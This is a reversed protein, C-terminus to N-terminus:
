CNKKNMDIVGLIHRFEEEVSCLIVPAEEEFKVCANKWTKMIETQMSEDKRYKRIDALEIAPLYAVNMLKEIKDVVDGALWIKNDGFIKYVKEIADVALYQKKDKREDSNESPDVDRETRNIFDKVKGLTFRLSLYIEEIKEVRKEQLKSFRIEHEVSSLKLDTKFKEVDKSLFHNIISRVLFGISMLLVASGGLSTIIIEGLNM